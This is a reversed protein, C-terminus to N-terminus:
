TGFSFNFHANPNGFALEIYPWGDIAAPADIDAPSVPNTYESSAFVPHTYQDNWAAPPTRVAGVM